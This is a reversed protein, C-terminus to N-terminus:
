ATEVKGMGVPDLLTNRFGGDGAGRAGGGSYLQGVGGGKLRQWSCTITASERAM